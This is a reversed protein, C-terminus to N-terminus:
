STHFHKSHEGAQLLKEEGPTGKINVTKAAERKSNEGMKSIQQRKKSATDVKINVKIIKSQFLKAVNRLVNELSM